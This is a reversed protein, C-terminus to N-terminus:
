WSRQRSRTRLFRFAETHVRVILIARHLSNKIFGCFNTFFQRPLGNQRDRKVGQIQASKSWKKDEKEETCFSFIVNQGHKQAMKQVGGQGRLFRNKSTKFFFNTLKIIRIFSARTSSSTKLTQTVCATNNKCNRNPGTLQRARRM